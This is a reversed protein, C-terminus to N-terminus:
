KAKMHVSHYHVKQKYDPRKWNIGNAIAFMDYAATMLAKFNESVEVQAIAHKVSEPDTLNAGRNV